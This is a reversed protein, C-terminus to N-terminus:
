RLYELMALAIKEEFVPRQATGFVGSLTNNSIYSFRLINESDSKVPFGDTSIYGTLSAVGLLTGTKASVKGITESSGMWEDLTGRGGSISLRNLLPSSGEGMFEIIKLLENCTSRNQPSIGSGDNIFAERTSPFIGAAVLQHTLARLGAETSGVGVSHFGSEKVILEAATNDSLSLMNQLIDILPPSEIEALVIPPLSTLIYPSSPIIVGRAELIDDFTAAASVATNFSPQWRMESASPSAGPVDESLAEGEFDLEPIFALFENGGNVTLASLPASLNTNKFATPWSQPYRIDDYHNEIAIVAGGLETVGKAIIQDALDELSTYVIENQAGSESEYYDQTLLYPDGSGILYLSGPIKGDVPEFFARVQTKYTYDAGLELLAALATRLKSGSAPSLGIKANHTFIERDGERVVLCSSAPLEGTAELLKERLTLFAPYDSIRNPLTAEHTLFDQAGSNLRTVNGLYEDQEAITKVSADVFSDRDRFYLGLSAVALALLILPLVALLTKDLFNKENNM